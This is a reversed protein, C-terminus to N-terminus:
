SGLNTAPTRNSRVDNQNHALRQFRELEDRWIMRGCMGNVSLDRFYSTSPGSSISDGDDQNTTLHM